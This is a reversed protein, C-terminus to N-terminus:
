KRGRPKGAKVDPNALLRDLAERDWESRGLSDGPSGSKGAPKSKSSAGMGAGLEKPVEPTPKSPPGLDLDRQPSVEPATGVPPSLKLPEGAQPLPLARSNERLDRQVPVDNGVQGEPRELAVSRVPSVNSQITAPPTANSGGVDGYRAAQYADTAPNMGPIKHVAAKGVNWIDRWLGQAHPAATISQPAGGPASMSEPLVEAANAVADAAGSLPKGGSKLQLVKQPNVQGGESVQGLEYLKAMQQRAQPFAQKLEQAGAPLQRMMEDELADAIAQHTKGMAQEAPDDSLMRGQADNRLTRVTQVAEPGDFGGKFQDRYFQVRKDIKAQIEPDAAREGAAGIDHDLAPTPTRGTGIADGVQGYVQGEQNLRADIEDPNINRTNPLKVDEAMRQTALSQNHSNIQDTTDPSSRAPGPLDANLATPDAPNTKSRVDNATAKFGDARARVLQQNAGIRADEAASRPIAANVARDVANLGPKAMSPIEGIMGGAAIGGAVDEAAGVAPHAKVLDTNANAIPEDWPRHLATAAVREVANPVDPAHEFPKSLQSAESEDSGYEVPTAKSGPIKAAANRAFDMTAGVGRALGGGVDMAAHGLQTLMPTPEADAPAAPPTPKSAKLSDSNFQFKGSDDKAVSGKPAAVWTDGVKVQYAGTGDQAITGADAPSWPM